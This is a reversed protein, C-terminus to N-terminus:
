RPIDDARQAIGVEELDEKPVVIEFAVQGWNEFMGLREPEESVDQQERQDGPNPHKTRQTAAEFEVPTM